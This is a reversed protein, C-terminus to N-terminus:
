PLSRTSNVVTLMKDSQEAARRPPPKKQARGTLSDLIGVAGVEALRARIEDESKLPGPLELWEGTDSKAPPVLLTGVKGCRALAVMGTREYTAVLWDRLAPDRHAHPRAPDVWIQIVEFPQQDAMITDLMPDIAYGAHDPRRIDATTQDMIWRCSWAKCPDPRKAYIGCGRSRLHPCRVHAPKHGERLQVPVLTCCATCSGCQRGRVPPGYIMWGNPEITNVVLQPADSM